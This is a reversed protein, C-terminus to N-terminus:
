LIVKRPCKEACKGCGTCKDQDIYAINNELHVADFECQKVCIGCGICGSQCVNMVSKGKENSSCMVIHKAKQPVLEILHNPCASVCKGCAKCAGPDVQAIGDVIHIADFQCVKVCSGFGMCGYDCAKPGKGPVFMMANCDTYGTYEYNLTTKDCKGSCKVFAVKKDGEEVAMDMIDAVIAGVTSGGVPCGNCPAEGKVIAAALGSCGAYGCGGCNNGPLVEIIAVERPDVEVKFKEASFCLFFGLILGTGGVILTALVIGMINM